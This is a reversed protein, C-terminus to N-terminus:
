HSKNMERFREEFEERRKELIHNDQQKWYEKENNEREKADTLFLVDPTVGLYKSLLYADYYTLENLGRELASIYQPTVNLVRGLDAQTINLREREKKLNLLRRCEQLGM